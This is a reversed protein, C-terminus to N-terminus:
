GACQTAQLCEQLEVSDCQSDQHRPEPASGEKYTPMSQMGGSLVNGHQFVGLTEGLRERPVRGTVATSFFYFLRRVYGYLISYGCQFRRAFDIGAGKAPQCHLLRHSREVDCHAAIFSFM